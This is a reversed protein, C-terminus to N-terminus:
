ATGARPRDRHAPTRRGPSLGQLWGRGVPVTNWAAMILPTSVEQRWNRWRCVMSLTRPVVRALCQDVASIMRETSPASCKGGCPWRRTPRVWGAPVTLTEPRAGRRRHHDCGPHHDTSQRGPRGPDPRQQDARRVTRRGGLRCDSRHRRVPQHRGTGRRRDGVARRRHGVPVPRVAAARRLAHRRHQGGGGVGGARHVHDPSGAGSFAAATANGGVALVQRGFATKNMVVAGAIVFVLAWLLLSPIPGLDGSGFLLTFGRELIPIPQFGSVWQAVGGAIGLMALTVLFSPIGAYAVLAGNVTGVALGVGLGALVGFGVNGTASLTLATVVSSLGAVSGVSLDIQAAGIVFTGAVAMVAIIATQRVINLLNSGSLFGDDGLTLAFAAFVVVFGIYIAQDRWDLRTLRGPRTRAAVPPSGPATDLTPLVM